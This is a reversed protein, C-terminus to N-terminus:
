SFIPALNTALAAVVAAVCLLYAQHRHRQWWRLRRRCSAPLVDIDVTEMARLSLTLAVAQLLSIAILATSISFM